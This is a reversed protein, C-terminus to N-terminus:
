DSFDIRKYYIVEPDGEDLNEIYGSKSFRSSECINQMPLNSENTSTFLKNTPYNEEIFSIIAKGVGQRRYKPHVILLSIFGQGYFSQEFVAFGVPESGIEAILCQGAAVADNLIGGRSTNGIAKEDMALISKLDCRNAKRVSIEGKLTRDIM